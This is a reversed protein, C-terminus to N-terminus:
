DPRNDATQQSRDSRYSDLREQEALVEDNVNYMLADREVGPGDITKVGHWSENNGCFLLLSNPIFPFMSVEFFDEFAFHKGSKDTFGAQKPQFVSTGYEALSDDKPLCFLGAFLKKPADTHPGLSYGTRDKNLCIYPKPRLDSIDRTPFRQKLEDSFKHMLGAVLKPDVLVECFGTWFERMGPPLGCINQEELKFEFRDRYKRLYPIKSNTQCVYTDIQPINELITAYFGTSFVNDVRLHPFPESAVDAAMIKRYVNDLVEKFDTTQVANM